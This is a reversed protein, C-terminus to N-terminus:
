LFCPRGVGYRPPSARMAPTSGTASAQTVPDTVIEHDHKARCTEARDARQIVPHPQSRKDPDEGLDRGGHRQPLGTEPPRDEVGIACVQRQRDEPDHAQDVGEVQHVVEVTGPVTPVTAAAPAAPAAAISPFRGRAASERARHPLQAPNRGYLRAVGRPHEQTVAAAHGDPEYDGGDDHGRRGFRAGGSPGGRPPAAPRAASRRCPARSRDRMRRPAGTSLPPRSWM